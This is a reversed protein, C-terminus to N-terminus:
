LKGSTAEPARLVKGRGPQYVSINQKIHLTRPLGAAAGSLLPFCVCGVCMCETRESGVSTGLM